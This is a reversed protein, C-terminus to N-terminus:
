LAVSVHQFVVNRQLVCATCNRQLSDEVIPILPSTASYNVGRLIPAQSEAFGQHLSGTLYIANCVLTSLDGPHEEFFAKLRQSNLLELRLEKARAQINCLM